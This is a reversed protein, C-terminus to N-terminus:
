GRGEKPRGLPGEKVLGEFERRACSLRRWVTAVPCDLVRAVEEGSLGELEFLVFAQRHAPKMRELAQQARRAMEEVSWEPGATRTLDPARWRQIAGLGTWFGARSRRRRNAQSICLKFLWTRFDARGQFRPLYRFVQIFVEQCLDDAEAPPVGLRRLFRAAQPQFDRHLARWAGEDGGVCRDVLPAPFAPRLAAV